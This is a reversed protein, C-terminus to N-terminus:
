SSLVRFHCLRWAGTEKVLDVHWTQSTLTRDLTYDTTARGNGHVNSDYVDFKVIAGETALRRREEGEFTALSTENRRAACLHAYAATYRGDRLARLYANTEGAPRTLTTVMMVVAAIALGSLVVLTVILAWLWAWGRRRAGGARGLGCKCSPTM